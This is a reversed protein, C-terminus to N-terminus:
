YVNGLGTMALVPLELVGEPKVAIWTHSGIAGRWGYARAAYVQVVAEPTTAPDPAIGISERSATRWDGSHGLVRAAGVILPLAAVAAVVWIIRRGRGAGTARDDAMDGSWEARGWDEGAAAGSALGGRYPRLTEIQSGASGVGEVDAQRGIM